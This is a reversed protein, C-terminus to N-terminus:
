TLDNLGSFVSRVAIRVVLNHFDIEFTGLMQRIYILAYFM